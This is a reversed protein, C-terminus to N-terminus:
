PAGAPPGANEGAASAGGAGDRAIRHLMQWVSQWSVGLRRGIEALSLGQRRLRLAHWARASRQRGRRAPVGRERELMRALSSGRSLGRLGYRLASDIRRWTDGPSEPVPGSAVRPWTGARVRHAEAWTLIQAVTLRSRRM